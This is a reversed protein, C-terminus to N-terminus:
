DVSWIGPPYPVIFLIEKRSIAAEIVEVFTPHPQQLQHRGFACGTAMAGAQGGGAQGGGQSGHAVAGTV